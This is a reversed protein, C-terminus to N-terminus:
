HPYILFVYDIKYCENEKVIRVKITILKKNGLPWNYFIYYINDSKDDKRFSLTNISEKLTMQAQVLPDYDLEPIDYEKLLNATCYKKRLSDLKLGNVMESSFEVIYNTYFNRLMFVIQEESYGEKVKLDNKQQANSYDLMYFLMHMTLLYCIIKQTKM